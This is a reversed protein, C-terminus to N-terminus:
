RSGSSTPSGSTPCGPATTSPLLVYELVTDRSVLLDVLFLRNVVYAPGRGPHNGQYRLARRGTFGVGPRATYPKAPGGGERTSMTAGAARPANNADVDVGDIWTLPPDTNEFSSFFGRASM